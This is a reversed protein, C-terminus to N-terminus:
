KLENYKFKNFSNEFTDITNTNGVHDTEGVWSWVSSGIELIDTLDLNMKHSSMSIHGLLVKNVKRKM